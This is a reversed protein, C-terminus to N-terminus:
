KKKSKGALALIIWIVFALTAVQGAIKFLVFTLSLVKGIVFLSMWVVFLIMVIMSVNM